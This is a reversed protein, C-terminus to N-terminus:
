GALNRLHYGNETEPGEMIMKLSTLTFVQLIDTFLISAPWVACIHVSAQARCEHCFSLGGERNLGSTETDFHVCNTMYIPRM